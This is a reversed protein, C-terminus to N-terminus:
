LQAGFLSAAHELLKESLPRQQWEHLSVRHSRSLDDNFVEVQRRAFDVAYINLNAEDNLRFSRPDFNTSGVSVMLSDIILVKCHYMTPQYQYIEAGAVLLYGWRARSANQVIEADSHEGPVIIQVKVGRKLADVLAQSSLEDPVFYASSLHITHQASTIALLYMLHMSENGGSPSSSFMQAAVDGAAPLKPFYSDGHLVVGTVKIWNDLFVAQMQAVVPGEAKFHTDRWHQSDQANGTWLGAIGVGGTFGVQGDVVLLKRHTRNNMRTLIYWAPKHFKRLEVGATEMIAFLTPDMKNSGVWDLLVHVKVGARAREALADAFEKGIQDSWYIYSEFTITKQADRIASLMAPFIEDGNLLAEFRNGQLIAPGLLVGMAREFAPDGAAYLRQVSQEIKKEGTVLNLALIGAILTLVIALLLGPM